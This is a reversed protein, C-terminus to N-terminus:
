DIISAKFIGNVRGVCWFLGGQNDCNPINTLKSDLKKGNLEFELIRRNSNFILGIIDNESLEPLETGVFKCVKHFMNKSKGNVDNNYSPILGNVPAYKNDKTQNKTGKTHWLIHYPIKYFYNGDQNDTQKKICIGFGCYLKSTLKEIKWKITFINNSSCLMAKNCRALFQFDAEVTKGNNKIPNTIDNKYYLSFDSIIWDQNNNNNNNINNKYNNYKDLIQSLTQSMLPLNKFLQSNITSINNRFYLDLKSKIENKVNTILNKNNYQLKNSELLSDYISKNSNNNNNNNNNNGIINRVQNEFTKVSQEIKNKNLEKEKPLSSLYEKFNEEEKEGSNELIVLKEM